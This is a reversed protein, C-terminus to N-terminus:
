EFSDPRKYGRFYYIDSPSDCIPLPSRALPDFKVIQVAQLYGKAVVSLFTRNKLVLILFFVNIVM